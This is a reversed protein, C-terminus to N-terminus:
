EHVTRDGARWELLILIPILILALVFFLPHRGGESEEPPEPPPPAPVVPLRLVTGEPWLLRNGNQLHIVDEEKGGSPRSEDLASVHHTGQGGEGPLPVDTEDLVLTTTEAEALKIRLMFVDGPAADAQEVANERPNEPFDARLPEATESNFREVPADGRFPQETRPAFFVIYGGAALGEFSILPPNKGMEAEATRIYPAYLERFQGSFYPASVGQGIFFDYYGAFYERIQPLDPLLYAPRAAEAFRVEKCLIRLTGTRRVDTTRPDYPAAEDIDVTLPIPGAPQSPAPPVARRPACGSLILSFILM